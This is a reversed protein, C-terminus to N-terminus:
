PLIIFVNLNLYSSSISRNLKLPQVFIVKRAQAEAKEFLNTECLGFAHM